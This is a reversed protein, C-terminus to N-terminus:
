YNLLMSHKNIRSTMKTRHDHMCAIQRKYLSEVFDDQKFNDYSTVKEVDREREGRPETIQM